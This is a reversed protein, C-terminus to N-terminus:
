TKVQFVFFFHIQGPTPHYVLVKFGVNYKGWYNRRFSFNTGRKKCAQGLVGLEIRLLSYIPDLETRHHSSNCKVDFTDNQSRYLKKSRFINEYFSGRKYEDKIYHIGKLVASIASIAIKAQFLRWKLQFGILRLGNTLIYVNSRTIKDRINKM